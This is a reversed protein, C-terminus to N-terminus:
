NEKPPTIPKTWLDHLNCKVYVKVKPNEPVPDLTLLVETKQLKKLNMGALDQRNEDMIGIREIYHDESFEGMVRIEVNDKKSKPNIKVIPLHENKLADWEGADKETYEPKPTKPIIKEPKDQDISKNSMENSCHISFLFSAITVVAYYFTITPLNKKPKM